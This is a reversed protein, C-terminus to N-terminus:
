PAPTREPIWLVERGNREEVRLPSVATVGEIFGRTDGASFVGSIREEAAAADAILIPERAYRNIREVASGLPENVFQFQDREWSLSREDAPEVRLQALSIPGILEQGAELNTAVQGPGAVSVHGQYLIVQVEKQVIEVSFITGTAVVERDAVHVQFPRRPDKAVQFKARGRLLHLTRSASSFRVLVESSADLNISSGDALLVTRREGIGSVFQQARPPWWVWVGLLLAAAVSAGLLWRPRVGLMPRRVQTRQARRLSELAEVRLALVASHAEASSVQDWVAVAQDFAARHAPDCTLWQTFQARAASSMEGECLRVCWGAAEEARAFEPSQPDPRIM